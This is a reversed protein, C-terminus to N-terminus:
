NADKVCRFGINHHGARAGRCAPAAGVRACRRRGPTPLAAACWGTPSFTPSSAATTPATPIPGCSPRPGNTSTAPSTSCARPRQAPRIPASRCPRSGALATAPARATPRRRAGPIPAGKRGRAAYEREAETPLRKGLAECYDRAGYWSMENAPHREFGPDARWRGAKHIRADNDDWDFLHQGRANSHRRAKGPLGRVRRQHRRAPRDLVIEADGSAAAAREALGRESGMTFTGGAIMVMTSASATASCVAVFGVFALALVRRMSCHHRIPGRFVM